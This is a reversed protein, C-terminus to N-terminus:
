AGSSHPKTKKTDPANINEGSYDEVESAYPQKSDRKAGDGRHPGARLGSADAGAREKRRLPM